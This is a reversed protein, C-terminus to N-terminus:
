PCPHEQGSTMYSKEDNITNLLKSQQYFFYFAGLALTTALFNLLSRQAIFIYAIDMVESFVICLAGLFLYLSKKNDRYFYNLLAFSLLTIMVVNYLFEMYFDSESTLNPKIINHLVYLLYVNLMSLVVLHIKFYKIVHKFCLSKGIKLILFIYSLVYLGNALYYEFEYFHISKNIPLNDIVIGLIDATSYALLFGLFLKSKEKVFFMYIITILPVILSHFYYALLQNGNFEFVAFLIYCLLVFGALIRSRYM